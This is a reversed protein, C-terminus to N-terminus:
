RDQGGPMRLRYLRFWPTTRPRGMSRFSVSEPARPGCVSSRFGTAIMCTTTARRPIARTVALLQIGAAELNGLWAVYDPDIRDWGPRPNPWTGQGEAMAGRHYDHLLWDRHGDINVYSVDNRLDKGFLYYPINTGAYAVRSGAPSSASELRQWGRNFDPFRPYTVSDCLTRIRGSTGMCLASSFLRPPLHLRWVCARVPSRLSVRQWAWAAVVSSTLILCLLGMSVLASATENSRFVAEIRPFLPILGGIANPVAASLDWPISGDSGVFPWCEPTLLHLGLLIVAAVCLWRRRDLLLALPVVAMGLAQLMFRQQSRYPIFVWYLIVNLISM